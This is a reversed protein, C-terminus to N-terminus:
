EEHVVFAESSLNSVADAASVTGRNQLPINKATMEKVKRM